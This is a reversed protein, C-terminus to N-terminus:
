SVVGIRNFLLWHERDGYCMRGRISERMKVEDGYRVVVKPAFIVEIDRSRALRAGACSETIGLKDVLQPVTWISGDSLKYEKRGTGGKSASAFILTVDDTRYLRNRITSISLGTERAIGGATWFSGDNLEFTRQTAM